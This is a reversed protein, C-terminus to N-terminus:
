YGDSKFRSTLGAFDVNDDEGTQGHKEVFATGVRVAEVALPHNLFAEM